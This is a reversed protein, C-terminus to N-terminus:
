KMFDHTNFAIPPVQREFYDFNDNFGGTKYCVIYLKSICIKNVIM